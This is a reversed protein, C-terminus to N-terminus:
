GATEERHWRFRELDLVFAAPNPTHLEEGHRLDALTGGWVRIAHRGLASTRHKFIWGPADGSVDVREIRLTNIDLRYVPTYGYRRTGAYGLSGVVYISGEILTATHFDTPPFASEPYGYIALDGGPEHVFVDNYICFDPDYSDEHEGGIQIARGDPLLTLSQGYRDACWVPGDQGTDATDFRRGAGYAGGGARIMAEWFPERMRQANTEGFKRSRARRFDAPIIGALPDGDVSDLGILIRQHHCGLDAPDAGADLLRNIVAPSRACSLAGDFGAGLDAGAALFLEIVELNDAGAAEALLNSGFEDTQRVDAGENLLWRVVDARGSRIAYSLPLQGCRGRANFDAGRERLLRVKDLKGILLAILWPTRSWWDRAELPAGADLAEQVDAISGLAVAQHLPNWELHSPDAGAELLFRVADFRGIRSLVRLGSEAYDSIGSLDVGCAVLLALIELLRSDDRGHVADILADYGDKRKYRIDAGAEILARVRHPDGERLAVLLM